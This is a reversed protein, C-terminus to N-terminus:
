LDLVVGRAPVFQRRGHDPLDLIQQQDAIELGGAREDVGQVAFRPWPASGSRAASRPSASGCTWRSATRAIRFMPVSAAYGRSSRASTVPEGDDRSAIMCVTPRTRASRAVGSNAYRSAWM